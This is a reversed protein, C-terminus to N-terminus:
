KDDYRWPINYWDFVHKITEINDLDKRRKYALNHTPPRRPCFDTYNDHMPTPNYRHDLRCFGTESDMLRVRSGDWEFLHSQLIRQDTYWEGSVGKAIEHAVPKNLFAMNKYTSPCWDKLVEFFRDQYNEFNADVNFIKAWVSGKAINWCMPVQDEAVHAAKLRFEIFSDDPGRKINEFFYEKSLPIIDIDAITINEDPYLAPALLRVTQAAFVPHVSDDPLKLRVIDGLSEDIEIHEDPKEVLVLTRKVGIKEWAASALTWFDLFDKNSDCAMIVRDLSRDFKKPHKEKKEALKKDGNVFGKWGKAWFSYDGVFQGYRCPPHDPFPKGSSGHKLSNQKTFPLIIKDLFQQDLGYEDTRNGNKIWDDIYDKMSKKNFGIYKGKKFGFMGAMIPAFHLRHDHMIHWQKDTKLWENVAELERENVVSDADRSICVDSDDIALFRWFMHGDPWDDMRIIEAGLYRLQNCIAENSTTYFRCKWDPYLRKAELVNVVSGVQFNPKDGYLSFSIIKKM